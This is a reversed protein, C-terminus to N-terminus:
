DSTDAFDCLEPDIRSDFALIIFSSFITLLADGDRRESGETVNGVSITTCLIIVSVGLGGGGAIVVVDRGTLPAIVIVDVAPFMGALEVCVATPSSGV